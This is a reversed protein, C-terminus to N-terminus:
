RKCVTDYQSHSELHNILMNAYALQADSGFHRFGPTVEAFGNNLCWEVYPYAPDYPHFFSNNWDLQCEQEFLQTCYFGHFFLHPINQDKLMCHLNYMKNHWEIGVSRHWEGNHAIHNEWIKQRRSFKEEFEGPQLKSSVLSEGNLHLVSHLKGNLYWQERSVETFGVIILDPKPNNKVYDITSQYIYDNGEGTIGLNTHTAGLHRSIVAAMSDEYNNLEEGATNSDGTFLIHM